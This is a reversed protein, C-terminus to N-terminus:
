KRRYLLLKRMGYNWALVLIAILIKAIMVEMHALTVALLMLGETIGLGALGIAAYVLFEGWAGVKAREAKFVFAKSLFYNVVLGAVFGVGTAVLYHTFQKFLLLMLWDVVFAVGGVFVYRFAQICGNTTPATFLARMDFKKACALLEHM